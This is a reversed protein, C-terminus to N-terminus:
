ASAGRATEARRELRRRLKAVGRRAAAPNCRRGVLLRCAELEDYSVDADQGGVYGDLVVRLAERVIELENTVVESM